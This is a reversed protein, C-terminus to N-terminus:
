PVYMVYVVYPHFGDYKDSLCNLKEYSFTELKSSQIRTIQIYMSHSQLVGEVNIM